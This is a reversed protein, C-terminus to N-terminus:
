RVYEDIFDRMLELVKPSITQEISFYEDPMGSQCEQFLHNLNPLSLVKFHRNGAQKLAQKIAPLNQSAIVQVDKEGNLALVPMTLRSLYDKPNLDLFCKFWKGQLGMSADRSKIKQVQEEIQEQSYNMKSLVAKNQEILVEMGSVGPAALLIVFAVDKNTSAAIPAIMGGESHGAFGIRKHDIKPHKKLLDLAALADKAYDTTTADLLDQNQTGWGRDDFRLVAIGNRAMYDAIVAFPKHQFIEEDRNQLGSGSLMIIAPFNEGEAPYTLTGGFQYDVGEVSFSVEECVYNIDKPEQPRNITKQSDKRVLSLPFTQGSQTFTGSISDSTIYAGKFVVKSLGANVSVLLSDNRLCVKKAKFTEKTQSPSGFFAVTDESLTLDVTVPLNMVGTKLEGSWFQRSQSMCVLSGFTLMLGLIITKTSKTM